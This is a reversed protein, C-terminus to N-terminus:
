LFSMGQALSYSTAQALLSQECCGPEFSNLVMSGFTTTYGAILLEIGSPDYGEPIRQHM